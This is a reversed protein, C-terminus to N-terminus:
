SICQRVIPQGFRSASQFFFYASFVANVPSIPTHGSLNADQQWGSTSNHQTIAPGTAWERAGTCKRAFNYSRAIAPGSALGNGALWSM